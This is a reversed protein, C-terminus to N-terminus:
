ERWKQCLHGPITRVRNSGIRVAGASLLPRFQGPAPM